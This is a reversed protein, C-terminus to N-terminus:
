AVDFADMEDFIIRSHLAIFPLTPDMSELKEIKM